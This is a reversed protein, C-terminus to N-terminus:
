NGSNGGNDAGGNDAGGTDLSCAGTQDDYQVNPTVTDDIGVKLCAAHQAAADASGETESGQNETESGAQNENESAGQNESGAQNESAQAKQTAHAKAQPAQSSNASAFTAGGVTLGAVLAVPAMWKMLRSRM